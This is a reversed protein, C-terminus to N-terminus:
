KLLTMKLTKSFDGSKVTYFYVGASFGSADWNVSHSGASMYESAITDVKQGAVNFVDIDVNGAEAITISITTSPNFPNPSNQGVAYAAPADGEVSIPVSTIIGKISDHGIFWMGRDEPTDWDTGALSDAYAATNNDTYIGDFPTGSDIFQCTLKFGATEGAYALYGVGTGDPAFLGFSVAGMDYAPVFSFLNDDPSINYKYPGINFDNCVWPKPDTEGSNHDLVYDGNGNAWLYFDDEDGTDLFTIPDVMQNLCSGHSNFFLMGHRINHTDPGGNMQGGAELDDPDNWWDEMNLEAVITGDLDLMYFDSNGDNNHYAQDVTYIYNKDSVTVPNHSDCASSYLSYGDEGFETILEADGNPVWNWATIGAVRSDKNKAGQYVISFDNQDMWINDGKGWGEPLNVAGTEILTDDDPDTGVIWREAFGDSNTRTYYIPNALPIGAEDVEQFDKAHYSPVNVWQAMRVKAGFADYAWMYYTYEGAPVITGDSDNGDWNVTNSGKTLTINSGMYLCTDIKNVYHWGMFGNTVEGIEAGKDKTYVFLWMLADSGSVTVPIELGSGDFDYAIESAVSLKLLTPAFAAAFASTAFVALILALSLVKKM